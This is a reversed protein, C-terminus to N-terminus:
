HGSSWFVEDVRLFSYAPKRRLAKEARKEEQQGKGVEGTDM